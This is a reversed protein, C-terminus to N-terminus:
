TRNSAPYTILIHSSSSSPTHLSIHSLSDLSSPPSFPSPSYLASFVFLATHAFSQSPASVSHFSHLFAPPLPSYPPLDALAALASKSLLSCLASLVFLTLPHLFLPSFRSSFSRLPHFTRLCLTPPPDPSSLASLAPSHLTLHTPMPLLLSYQLFSSPSHHCYFLNVFFTSLTSAPPPSYITSQLIVFVLSVTIPLSISLLISKLLNNHTIHTDSNLM